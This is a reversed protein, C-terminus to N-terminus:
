PSAAIEAWAIEVETIKSKQGTKPVYNGHQAAGMLKTDLNLFGGDYFLNLSAPRHRCM